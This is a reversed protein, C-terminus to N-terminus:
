AAVESKPLGVGIGVLLRDSFHQVRYVQDRWPRLPPFWSTHHPTQPLGRTDFERHGRAASPAREGGAWLGAALRGAGSPPDAPSSRWRTQTACRSGMSLAAACSPPPSYPAHGTEPTARPGPTRAARALRSTSRHSASPGPSPTAPSPRRSSWLEGQPPLLDALRRGIAAREPGCSAQQRVTMAQGEADGHVAGIAM